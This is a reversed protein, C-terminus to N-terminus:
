ASGLLRKFDQLMSVPTPDQQYVMALYYSVYDGFHLGTWQQALPNPGSAALQDTMVGEAMMAERTLKMRLQNRAHCYDSLLFVVLSREILDPPVKMGALMNHDAEPIAEFQGPAKALEAIQTRWRRAVPALLDAGIITPWRGRMQVAMQKAPNQELPVKAHVVDQQERMAHVAQDISDSADPLFGLRCMMGLLYGFSAGVAARPQGQHDFRWLPCGAESAREALAGGTSVAMITLGADKAADFASLVEETNGSHSSAIFLTEPGSAYAPVGYDRWVLLPVSGLPAAYAQLLDAAIASGGMGAILVQRFGTFRPLELSQAREWAHTLQSPLGDIEALMGQPDLSSFARWDDLNM